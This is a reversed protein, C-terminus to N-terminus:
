NYIDIFRKLNTYIISILLNKVYELYFMNKFRSSNLSVNGASRNDYVPL